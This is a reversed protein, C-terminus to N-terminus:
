VPRGLHRCSLSTSPAPALMTPRDPVSGRHAPLHKEPPYDHNKNTAASSQLKNGGETLCYRRHRCSEWPRLGRSLLRLHADGLPGPLNSPDTEHQHDCRQGRTTRLGGSGLGTSAGCQGDSLLDVRCPSAPDNTNAIRVATTTTRNPFRTRPILRGAPPLRERQEGNLSLSETCLSSLPRLEPSRGSMERSGGAPAQAHAPALTAADV